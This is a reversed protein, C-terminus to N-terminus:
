RDNLGKGEMIAPMAKEVRSARTKSQKAGSFHLLWGRQRGPTLNDWAEQYEPMEDLIATLESPVDFEDTSKFEVELGAKEVEIGELIYDRVVSELKEVESLDAFRIQRGSQTNPGVKVLVGEPDKFLVGKPFLIACYQKFGQLIAINSGDHAYCPKGWKLEETVPCDLAITRLKVMEDRWQDQRDIFKDVKPNEQTM